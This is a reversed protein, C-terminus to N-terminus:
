LSNIPRILEKGENKASNIDASVPYAEMLDGDFPILLKKLEDTRAMAPDLWMDLSDEPLIVPMRDHVTETVKNPATTIITCSSITKGGKSWSEWLGALAFPRRSKLVFRYPQKQKGEKKWEYFGDALILCRRQKFAHKFSAKEDVTEGRANIMKYGVKEDEAWFPILGWKMNTGERSGERNILTLIEQGPAINFRPTVEGAIDFDFQEQLSDISEYLSFRGCM